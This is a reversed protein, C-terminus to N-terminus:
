VTVPIVVVYFINYKKQLDIKGGLCHLSQHFAVNQMEDPGETQLLLKWDVLTLRM